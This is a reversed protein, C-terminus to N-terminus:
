EDVKEVLRTHVDVIDEHERKTWSHDLIIDLGVLRGVGGEVQAERNLISWCALELFSLNLFSRTQLNVVVHDRRWIPLRM